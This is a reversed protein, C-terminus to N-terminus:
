GALQTVGVFDSSRSDAAVDALLLEIEERVLTEKELVAQAVRDLARRHQNLL